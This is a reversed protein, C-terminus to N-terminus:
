ENSHNLQKIELYRDCWQEFTMNRYNGLSYQDHAININELYEKGNLIFTQENYFHEVLFDILIIFAVIFIKM